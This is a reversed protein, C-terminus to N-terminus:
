PGGGSPCAGDGGECCGFHWGKIGLYECGPQTSYHRSSATRGNMDLSVSIRRSDSMFTNAGERFPSPIGRFFFLRVSERGERATQSSATRRAAASPSVLSLYSPPNM